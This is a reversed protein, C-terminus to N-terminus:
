ANILGSFPTLYCDDLPNSEIQVVAEAERVSNTYVAGLIRGERLWSVPCAIEDVQIGGKLLRELWCQRMLGPLCGSEQISPTVWRKDDLYFFVNGYAAESMLGASTVRLIENFGASRAEQLFQEEKSYDTHKVDPHPRDYVVTKLKLQRPEPLNRFNYEVLVSYNGSPYVATRLVLPLVEQKELQLAELQSVWETFDSWPFPYKLAECGAQIRQYHAKINEPLSKQTLVFTTFVGEEKTIETDSLDIRRWNANESVYFISPLAM